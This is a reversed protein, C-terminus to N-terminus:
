RASAQLSRATTLESGVDSAIFEATIDVSGKWFLARTGPGIVRDPKGDFSVVAIESDGTEIMKFHQLVLHSRERILYDAWSSNFEVESASHFELEVEGSAAIMWYEGPTLIDSFRGHRIVLARKNAGVLIRRLM